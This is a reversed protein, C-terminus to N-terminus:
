SIYKIKRDHLNQTTNQTVNNVKKDYLSTTTMIEYKLRRELRIVANKDLMVGGPLVKSLL